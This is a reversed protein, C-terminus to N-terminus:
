VEPMPLTVEAMAAEVDNASTAATIAAKAQVVAAEIQGAAALWASGKALVVGALQQITLGRAPAEALLIPAISTFDEAEPTAIVAAAEKFKQAYAVQKTPDSSIFAERARRAAAELLQINVAKSAALEAELDVVPRLQIHWDRTVMEDYIHDFPGNLVETAEDFEPRNEKIIRWVPKGLYHKIQDSPLETPFFKEECIIEEDLANFGVRAYNPM